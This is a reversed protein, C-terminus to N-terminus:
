AYSCPFAASTNLIHECHVSISKLSLVVLLFITDKSLRVMRPSINYSSVDNAKIGTTEKYSSWCNSTGQKAIIRSVYQSVSIIPGTHM